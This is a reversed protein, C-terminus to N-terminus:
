SGKKKLTGYAPKDLILKRQNVLKIEEPSLVAQHLAQGEIRKGRRYAVMLKANFLKNAVGLPLSAEKAFSPKELIIQKRLYNM